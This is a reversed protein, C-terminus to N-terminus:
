LFSGNHATNGRLHGIKENNSILIRAFFIAFTDELFDGSARLGNTLLLAMIKKTDRIAFLGDCLCEGARARAIRYQQGAFSVFLTNNYSSLFQGPIIAPDSTFCQVVKQLLSPLAMTTM